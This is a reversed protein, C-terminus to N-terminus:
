EPRAGDLPLLTEEGTLTVRRALTTKSKNPASSGAPIQWALEITVLYQGNPLKVSQVLDDHRDGPVAL